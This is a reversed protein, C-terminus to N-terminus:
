GTFYITSSTSLFTVTIYLSTCSFLVRDGLGGGSYTHTHTHPPLINESELKRDSVQVELVFHWIFLRVELSAQTCKRRNCEVEGSTCWTILKTGCCCAHITSRNPFYRLVSSGTLIASQVKFQSTSSQVKVKPISWPKFIRIGTTSRIFYTFLKFSFAISIGECDAMVSPLRSCWAGGKTWVRSPVFSM